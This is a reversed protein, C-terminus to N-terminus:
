SAIHRQVFKSLREGRGFRWGSKGERESSQPRIPFAIPCPRVFGRLLIFTDVSRPNVGVQVALFAILAVCRVPVTPSALWNAPLRKIPPPEAADCRQGSLM